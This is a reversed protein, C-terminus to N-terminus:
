SRRTVHGCDMTRWPAERERWKACIMAISEDRAGAGPTSKTSFRLTSRFSSEIDGIEHLVKTM